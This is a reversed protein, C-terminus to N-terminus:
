QDRGTWNLSLQAATATSRRRRRGGRVNQPRRIQEQQNEWPFMRRWVAARTQWELARVERRIAVAPIGLQRMEATLERLARAIVRDAGDPTRTRMMKSATAAVLVERRRAIPYPLITASAAATSRPREIIRDGIIGNRAALGRHPQSDSSM